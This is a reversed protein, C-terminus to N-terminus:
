TLGAISRRDGHNGTSRRRASIKGLLTFCGVGKRMKQLLATFSLRDLPRVPTRRFVIEEFSRLTIQTTWDQVCFYNAKKRWCIM